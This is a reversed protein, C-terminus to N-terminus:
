DNGVLIVEILHKREFAPPVSVQHQDNYVHALIVEGAVTVADRSILLESFPRLNKASLVSLEAAPMPGAICKMLRVRLIVTLDINIQWLPREQCETTRRLVQKCDAAVKTPTLTRSGEAQLRFLGSVSRAYVARRGSGKSALQNSARDLSCSAVLHIRLTRDRRHVMAPRHVDPSSRYCLAGISRISNRYRRLTARSAASTWRLAMGLGGALSRAIWGATQGLRGVVLQRNSSSVRFVRLPWCSALCSVYSLVLAEYGYRLLRLAQHAPIASLPQASDM